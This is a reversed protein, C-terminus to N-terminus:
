RASVPVPAEVEEEEEEVAVFKGRLTVLAIVAFVGVIVASTVTTVHAGDVFAVKAAHRVAEALEAPLQEAVAFATGIQERIPTVAEAPVGAPVEVTDAYAANMISGLVAIGLAGGMETATEVISVAAGSREKPVSSLVIDNTIAFALGMGLGGVVMAPLLTLYNPEVDIRTYLVLSLALLGLGLSVTKGRGWATAIRAAFPGTIGAALGGPIGAIGAVLPTWGLVLQLYQAIILSFAIMGFVTVVNTAVAGTFARNRFLKLDMLPEPLRTQRLVFWSMAVAGVALGVLADTTGIGDHAAEKVGFILGIIGAVSLGVSLLDIRGARPNRSEPIVALGALFVIAMVPLNILFVSGWWFHELMVGGVVPGLAFGSASMASWIGIATARQKRDTFVNRLIAAASPMITAGAVGLLARAGILLNPDDAFATVASALGFAVSGALLLKKRGIRDGLNGMTILLGGLAFGYVDAIWLLQTASPEVDEVLSPVALHLVTLDIALLLTAFCLIVLTAYRRGPSMPAAHSPNSNM